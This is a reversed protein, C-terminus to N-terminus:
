PLEEAQPDFVAMWNESVNALFLPKKNRGLIVASPAGELSIERDKIVSYAGREYIPIGPLPVKPHQHNFRIVGRLFSSPINGYKKRYFSLYRYFETHTIRSEKPLSHLTKLAVFQHFLNCQEIAKPFLSSPRGFEFAVPEYQLTGVDPITVASPKGPKRWRVTLLEERSVMLVGAGAYQSMLRESNVMNRITKEDVRFEEAAAKVTVWDSTLEVMM